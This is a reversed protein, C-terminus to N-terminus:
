FDESYEIKSDGDLPVENNRTEGFDFAQIKEVINKVFFSESVGINVGNERLRAIEAIDRVALDNNGLKSHLEARRALCVIDDNNKNIFANFCKLAYELATRSYVSDIRTTLESLKIYDQAMTKFVSDKDKPLLYRAQKMTNNISQANRQGIEDQYKIELFYEINRDYYVRDATGGDISIKKIDSAAEELPAGTNFRLVEKEDRKEDESIM